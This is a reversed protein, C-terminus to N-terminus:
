GYERLRHSRAIHSSSTSCQLNVFPLIYFDKGTITDVFLEYNKKVTQSIAGLKMVFILLNVGDKTSRLLHLLQGIADESPVTGSDAEDLGATDWFLFSEADLPCALLINISTKLILLGNQLPFV